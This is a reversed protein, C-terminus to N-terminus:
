KKQAKIKDLVDTQELVKTLKEHDSLWKLQSEKPGLYEVQMGINTMNTIFQPDAVIAKFGEALKDKVEDPMEKPAAVGYWNSIVIDLGQEKFTPVKAFVPDSMRQESTVALVRITGDKIHEKVVMPNIFTLQIHGGLLAATVEGAGTFPVQDIAIGAAQGFMEGLLHTFSGVGVHGFKLQGPHKRAYEIIEDMTEWPQNAQVALVMPLSAIQVLPDLATPYNYKTSGYSPLLLIDLSTIGLTYGDPNAGSLENWGIAGAGGPKNVVVLPQRLYQPAFKELSRATLDIGGGVSFPVIITIPRDPYQLKTSVAKDQTSSCGGTLLVSFFLCVAMCIFKKKGL